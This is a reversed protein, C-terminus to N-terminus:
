AEEQNKKEFRKQKQHYYGIQFVGQDQLSLHAPYDERLLMMLDSVQKEYYVKIGGDLKRIHKDKLNLLTPFVVAPTACASSFYKDKITANIGPNAREQVAELVAFLRGLVYPQYTTQDNLQVTMAEKIIEDKGNRLLYAKVIAMREWTIERDAKIRLQAQQYLTAPYRGGTLIARLTEGVMKPSATKDKSKENVTAKLLQWLPLMSSETKRDPVIEIQKAHLYLHEVMKGFTDRLFFRVSLRAANPAIGLIYFRAGPDLTGAQWAVVTGQSIRRMADDLDADTLGEGDCDMLMSFADQYDAEGNEAWYVVVTDGFFKRHVRDAILYNLASTYAFAAYKGVPANLNQEKGYSCFAPANFSVLAAGSPQAGPVGKVPPHIKEPVIQEGSILCRSAEESDSQVADYANQWASQIESDMQAFTDDILFVLNTGAKIDDLYPYDKLRDNADTPNWKEFFAKLSNACPNDIRKLLAMHLQKADTFCNTAREPSEKSDIGLLYTSNDCLFNSRIGVTRKVPAPVTMDTPVIAAKKGQTIEKRLSHIRVLNGETDLELAYSVKVKSWGPRDLKGQRVLAEYYATLAQLIM